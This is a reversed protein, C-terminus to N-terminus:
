GSGADVSLSLHTIVDQHEHTVIDDFTFAHQGHFRILGEIRKQEQSSVAVADLEENLAHLLSTIREQRDPAIHSNLYQHRLALVSFHRQSTQRARAVLAEAPLIHYDNHQAVIPQNYHKYRFCFERDDVTITIKRWSADIATIPGAALTAGKPDTIVVPFGISLSSSVIM